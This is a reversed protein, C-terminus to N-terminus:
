WDQQGFEKLKRVVINQGKEATTVGSKGKIFGYLLGAGNSIHMVPFLVALFAAAISRSAAIAALTSALVLFAYLYLPYFFIRHSAAFPLLLLYMLFGLPIFGTLPGSGAILTQQARGRGYSFMQRIFLRLSRRQSRQIAMHPAHMLKKGSSLIRDLLENEENPYLREDLGGAELFTDRRIALNCLILERDTTERTNGVARYRNRMGGAGFLSALAIGFLQQMRSDTRPTLSPGGIVAVSTDAMISTCSKLCDPAVISDDDLFYLIEGRAENAATNRQRSPNCGESVLVEFPQSIDLQRLAELAAVHGGPKVPIIFSFTPM